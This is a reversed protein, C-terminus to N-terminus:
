KRWFLHFSISKVSVDAAVDALSCLLVVENQVTIKGQRGEEDFKGEKYSPDLIVVRDDDTIGIAAIYHGVHSFLGVRGDRDGGVHIVAAGSTRLCNVLAQPDDSTEHRLGLKAAFAPGFRTYDTGSKHNAATDYSLRLAHQLEFTCNPILQDAVMVASCLGCGSSRVTTRQGRQQAEGEQSTHTVYLWHPYDLQNVYKM